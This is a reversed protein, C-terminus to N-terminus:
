LVVGVGVKIFFKATLIFEYYVPIELYLKYKESYKWAAGPALGFAATSTSFDTAGMASFGLYPHVKKKPWFPLRYRLALTGVPSTFGSGIGLLADLRDAYSVGGAVWNGGMAQAVVFWTKGAARSGATTEAGAVIFLLIIVAAARIM